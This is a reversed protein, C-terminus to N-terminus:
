VSMICRESDLLANCVSTVLGKVAFSPLVTTAGLHKLNILQLVNM